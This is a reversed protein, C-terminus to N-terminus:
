LPSPPAEASTGPKSVLRRYIGELGDLVTTWSFHARVHERGAAAFAAAEDPRDRLRRLAGCLALSDNPTVLVGTRGHQIVDPIGGIDSAIVPKGYSLAEILVVGLGETDGQADRVAPLVFVDCERYCEHLQEPPVHGLFKVRTDLGLWRSREVLEKREPGDGVITLTVEQSGMRALADLLVHVGKREVLRGVFLVSLPPQIGDRRMARRQAAAESSDDPVGAEDSPPEIAAGFPVIEPTVDPAVKALLAATHNSITTVADARRAARRAYMRMPIGLVPSWVLEAGLFTLVLPLGTAKRAAEGAVAHPVPWFAHLLDYRGTGALKKAAAAAALIYGPVLGLLMPEERLQEPVTRVHSLRELSAPAYRFRHVRVGDAVQEGGAGRWAPALVEAHINRARLRRVTEGLWPTIPDNDHRPFATAIFLARIPDAL